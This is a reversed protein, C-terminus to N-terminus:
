PMTGILVLRGSVAFAMTASSGQYPRLVTSLDDLSHDPTIRITKTVLWKRL